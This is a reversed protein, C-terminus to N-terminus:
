LTFFVRHFVTSTIERTLRLQAPTIGAQHRKQNSLLCLTVPLGRLCVLHLQFHFSRWLRRQTLMMMQVVVRAIVLM